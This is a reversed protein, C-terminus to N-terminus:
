LIGHSARLLRTYRTWMNRSFLLYIRDKHSTLLGRKGAELPTSLHQFLGSFALNENTAAALPGM